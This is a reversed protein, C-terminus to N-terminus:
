IKKKMEDHSILNDPNNSEEFALLLEEKDKKTLNNWLKGDKDSIRKTILEYFNLLLDKNDISDILKHFNKKLELTNM